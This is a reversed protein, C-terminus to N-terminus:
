NASRSAQLFRAHGRRYARFRAEIISRQTAVVAESTPDPCGIAGDPEIESFWYREGDYLFDVCLFPIPVKAAFWGVAEELEAPLAVYERRGGRGTNAVYGGEAPSRRLVAHPEGDVVFVRYDTTGDGLYPQVVLANEGGQALSLLGQLDEESRAMCIGWGACWGTPKVIAPYTISKMAPANLHQGLDRGTGLRTTPIAPIPSGRLFLITALKDNVIPSLGPPAPLYFGSQELVAYVAYQNFVDMAMYPLSYLSTVFLTDEPTVLDGDVYVDVSGLDTADVAIADPPHSTWNMDLKRAVEEYPWWFDNQYLPTALRSERDPFVWVMRRLTSESEISREDPGQELTETM